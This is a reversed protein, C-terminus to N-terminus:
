KVKVVNREDDTQESKTWKRKYRIIYNKNLETSCPDSHLWIKWDAKNKNLKKLVGKRLYIVIQSFNGAKIM